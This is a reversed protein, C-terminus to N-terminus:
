RHSDVYMVADLLPTPCANKHGLQQLVRVDRILHGNKLSWGPNLYSKEGVRSDAKTARMVDNIDAGVEACLSSMENAFSIQTALIANHAHKAMEASRLSMTLTPRKLPKYLNVVREVIVPDDGGIIVRDPNMFNEVSQGPRLLEPIYVVNGKTLTETTGVPVQTTVCLVSDPSRYQEIKAALEQIEILGLGDKSFKIDASLFVFDVEPLVSPFLNTFGLSENKLLEELGPEKLTTVGSHLLEVQHYEGIGTVSYGMDAFCAALIIGQHQLGAVLIRPKDAM